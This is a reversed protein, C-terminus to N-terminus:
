EKEYKEYKSHEDCDMVIRYNSRFEKDTRIDDFLHHKLLEKTTPRFYPNFQLM